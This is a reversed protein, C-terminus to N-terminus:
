RQQEFMGACAILEFYNTMRVDHRIQGRITSLRGAPPGALADNAARMRSFAEGFKLTM